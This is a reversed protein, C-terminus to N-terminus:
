KTLSVVTIRNLSPETASLVLAGIGLYHKGALYQCSKTGCETLFGQVPSARHSRESGRGFASAALRATVVQEPSPDGM